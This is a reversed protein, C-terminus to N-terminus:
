TSFQFVNTNGTTQIPPSGCAKLIAKAEKKRQRYRQMAEASQKRRAEKVDPRAIRAQQQKKRKEIYQPDDKHNQYYKKQREAVTKAM